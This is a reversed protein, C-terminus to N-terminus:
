PSRLASSPTDSSTRRPSITASVPGFPAPFDLQGLDRGPQEVGRRTLDPVGARRVQALIGSTVEDGLSHEVLDREAGVLRACAFRDRLDPEAVVELAVRAVERRALPFPQGQCCHEDGVGLQEHEVFRCATDIRFPLCLERRQQARLRWAAAREHDRVVQRPGGVHGVAHDFQRQPLRAHTAQEDDGNRQDARRQEDVVACQRRQESCGPEDDGADCPELRADIRGALKGDDGRDTCGRCGPAHEERRDRACGTVTIATTAPADSPRRAPTAVPATAAKTEFRKRPCPIQVGCCISPQAAQPAAPANLVSALSRRGPRSPRLPGKSPRPTWPTLSQSTSDSRIHRRRCLANEASEALRWLSRRHHVPEIGFIKAYKAAVAGAASPLSPAGRNGARGGHLPIGPLSARRSRATNEAVKDVVSVPPEALISLWPM